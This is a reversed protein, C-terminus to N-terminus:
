FFGQFVTAMALGYVTSLMTATILLLKTAIM